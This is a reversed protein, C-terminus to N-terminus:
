NLTARTGCEEAYLSAVHALTITSLTSHIAAEIRRWVRRQRQVPLPDGDALLRKRAPMDKCEISDIIEALTMEEPSRALMYTRRSSGPKVLGSKILTVLARGIMRSSVVMKRGLQATSLSHNSAQSLHLLVIAACNGVVGPWPGVVLEPARARRRSGTTRRRPARESHGSM